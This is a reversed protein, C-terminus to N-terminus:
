PWPRGTKKEAKEQVYEVIPKLYVEEIMKEVTDTMVAYLQIAAFNATNVAHNNVITFRQFRHVGYFGGWKYEYFDPGRLLSVIPAAPLDSDAWMYMSLWWPLSNYFTWQTPSFMYGPPIPLYVTVTAGPGAQIECNYFFETLFGAYNLASILRPRELTMTFITEHEALDVLQELLERLQGMDGNVPQGVTRKGLTIPSTPRRIRQRRKLAEPDLALNSWARQM